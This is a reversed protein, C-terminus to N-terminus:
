LLRKKAKTRNLTKVTEPHESGLTLEYIELAYTDEEFAKEFKGM